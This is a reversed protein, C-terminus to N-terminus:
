ARQDLLSTIILQNSIAPVLLLWSGRNTPGGDVTRIMTVIMTLKGDVEQRCGIGSDCAAALTSTKTPTFPQMPVREM